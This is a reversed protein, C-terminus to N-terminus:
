NTIDRLEVNIKHGACTEEYTAGPTIFDETFKEINCIGFSTGNFSHYAYPVGYEKCKDVIAKVIENQQAAGVQNACGYEQLMWRVNNETAFENYGDLINEAEKKCASLNLSDVETDATEGPYLHFSIAMNNGHLQDLNELGFRSYGLMDVFILRDPTEAEIADIAENMLNVYVDNDDDTVYFTMSDPIEGKAAYDTYVVNDHDSVFFPPENYLNFSLANVDIDSYRKAINEWFKVFIEQDESGPTFLGERSAEEDGGIMLGGPTSHVDLCVHIDNMICWEILRDLNEYQIENYTDIDGVFDLGVHDLNVKNEETFFYRTDLYVRVFNYGAESIEMVEAEKYVTDKTDRVLAPDSVTSAWPWAFEAKDVVAVGRWEPLDGDVAPFTKAHEKAEDSITNAHEDVEEVTEEVLEEVPEEEVVEEVVEEEPGGQDAIIEPSNCGCVALLMSGALFISLVKKKM